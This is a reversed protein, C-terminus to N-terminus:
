GLETVLIDTISGLVSVFDFINWADRFYNLPGFAIIKLVSEMFFFTTFVINLNKMMLVITNLAILAMISYEFPPSVVFQWMRYQFSLKNKPMHRTLPKANIAFDICARENKELSYDEMMKDGQEQFTIIILAVFINVFFFPFVVFYVVYFISMEMRYGPSPGQNEYTSDVSHKLVQPWGEGTSVTFLTLLAWAVNDYHFDYKKWERKQAKVEDRDYVLYEGRCDREFEKSEDTCYFFRGKFLQVAVVAFIFMFLMYVILINLVNKLSNVVCDFVAKLKPLRKITKLPRLVRLVRLSKITSIDKGKSSGRTSSRWITKM